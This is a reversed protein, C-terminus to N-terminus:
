RQWEPEYEEMFEDSIRGPIKCQNWCASRNGTEELPCKQTDLGYGGIDKQASAQGNRDSYETQYQHRVKDHLEKPDINQIAELRAEFIDTRWGFLECAHIAQEVKGEELRLYRATDWVTMGQLRGQCSRYAARSVASSAKGTLKEAEGKTMEGSDHPM